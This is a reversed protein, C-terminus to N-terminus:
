VAILLPATAEVHERLLAEVAREDLPRGLLYGQATGCGLETLRQLQTEDEIGEATTDIGLERAMSLVARVIAASGVDEGADEGSAAVFSRDIKLRDIKFERLHALSSYGTGFDDMAIRLGLARLSTLTMAIQDSHEVMATETIEIEIRSPSLRHRALAQAFEAPLTASRLQLASVNVSVYLPAPWLSAQRCAEEIVWAGIEAILGSREALPIFDVPPVLGRVPHRWRILSEFGCLMRGPLSYLPQYWLEFQGLSVALSLDQELARKDVEQERMGDQYVEFRNRGATKASYLALDAKQQLVMADDGPAATAIGITCGVTVAHGAIDFPLAAQIIIDQALAAIRESPARLLVALEDGGLRFALEDPRLCSELRASLKHLLEDGVTHGLLDNVKKFRDLDISLMTVEGRELFDVVSEAFMRRNKLGTLADHFAMHAITKQGNRMQTVDEYTLIAGGRPVPQCVISLVVGSALNQELRTVTDKRMWAHHNEIVRALREEDWGSREGITSLFDRLSMGTKLAGPTLGFLQGVRENVLTLVGGPSLMALGNSMNALADAATARAKTDIFSCAFGSCVIILGVSAVSVALARMADPDSFSGDVLMPTVQFATMGTFHLSIISLFFLATAGHSGMSERELRRATDLAAAALVCALIISAIMFSRDWTVIGQVRYALMGIYHMVVISLGVIAGGFAPAAGGRGTAALFGLASGAMAILLSVMTLVPDFSIPLRPEYGLMAVFHTCWISAGTVFAALMIWAVKEMSRATAARLFLRVMAWSGSGCIVAAIM